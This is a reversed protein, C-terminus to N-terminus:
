GGRDGMSRMLGGIGDKKYIYVFRTSLACRLEEVESKLLVQHSDARDMDHLFQKGRKFFNNCGRVTCKVAKNPCKFLHM